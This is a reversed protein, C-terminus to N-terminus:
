KRQLKEELFFRLITDGMAIRDGYFLQRRKRLMKKNIYTPNKSGLNEIFFDGDESATISCHVKSVLQDMIRLDCEEGRGIVTEISEIVFSNGFFNESLILVVGKKILRGASKPKRTDAQTLTTDGGAKRMRAKKRPTDVSYAAANKRKM